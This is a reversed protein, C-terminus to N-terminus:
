ADLKRGVKTKRGEHKNEAMMTGIRESLQAKSKFTRARIEKRLIRYDENSIKGRAKLESVIGRFKRVMNMYERKGKNVKKKISGARRRTKRAVKAKRGKIETIMIAGSSVLDKIDQRTIAEKIEDLRGNNFVIRDKGVGLVRVALNKKIDLKM